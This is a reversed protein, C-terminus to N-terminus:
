EAELTQVREHLLEVLALLKEMNEAVRGITKVIEENQRALAALQTENM